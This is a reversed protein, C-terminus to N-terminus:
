VAAALPRDVPANVVRAVAALIDAAEIRDLWDPSVAVFRAVHDRDIVLVSTLPLEWSGTGTVEGIWGSPPPSPTDDPTFVLGLRRALSNDPDSAVTLRLSQRTVIAALRDPLQPSIAVLPVRDRDLAPLLARDYHPLALNDAPCDAFRFFVLVAPGNAVLRDLTIAGGDPATLEFPDLRDGVRVARDPDFTEILTRRQTANSALREPPWNKEREAQLADFQAALTDADAIDSM